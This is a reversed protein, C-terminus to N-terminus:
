IILKIILFIIILCDIKISVTMNQTQQNTDLSIMYTSNNCRVVGGPTLDLKVPTLWLHPKPVKDKSSYSRHASTHLHITRLTLSPNVLCYDLLIALEYALRNDSGLKGFFYNFFIPNSPSSHSMQIPKPPFIWVDQSWGGIDGVFETVNNPQLEYRSLAFVTNNFDRIDRVFKLSNDFFLDSNAVIPIHRKHQMRRNVIDFVDGFTQRRNTRVHPFSMKRHSFLSRHTIAEDEPIVVVHSIFPNNLNQLLAQTMEAQRILENSFFFPVYLIIPLLSMKKLLIQEISAINKQM